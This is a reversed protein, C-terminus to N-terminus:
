QARALWEAVDGLVLERDDDQWLLHYSDGYIRLTKDPSSLRRFWSEIQGVRVFCDNGAALVLVPKELRHAVDGSGAILDGLESLFKLTFVRIYHPQSRMATQYARDRTLPPSVKSGGVFWSPYFKLRPFATGLARVATRLWPPVPRVLSVVPVSLILGAIDADPRAAAFSASLLSGMSEGFLHIPEGPHEARIAALFDAIDRHQAEVDLLMARRSLVPDCGQGRLEMAYVTRNGLAAAVPGFQEACGSLGHLCALVGVRRDRRWARAVRAEGDSTRWEFRM